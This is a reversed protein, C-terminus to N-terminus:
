TIPLYEKNANFLKRDSSSMRGSLKCMLRYNAPADSSLAEVTLKVSSGKSLLLHNIDAALYRPCYGVIQNPKDARILVAYEDFDNQCDICLYLKEGVNLSAVREQADPQLHRLGHVFFYHEFSGDAELSMRKFTQLQDTGRLGGSRALIELPNAESPDLSLWKIFTPYEPRKESLLRNKFLPFLEISNYTKDLQEMGSFTVFKGSEKAGYTYRFVYGGAGESLQGVVYWTRTDPEQWALYLEKSKM